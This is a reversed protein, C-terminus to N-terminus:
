GAPVEEIETDVPRSAAAARDRRLSWLFWAVMAVIFLVILPLLAAVFLVQGHSPPANHLTM